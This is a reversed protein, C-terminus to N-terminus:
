FDSGRRLWFMVGQPKLCFLGAQRRMIEFSGGTLQVGRRRSNRHGVAGDWELSKIVVLWNLTCLLLTFTRLLLVQCVILVRSHTPKNPYGDFTGRFLPSIRQSPLAIGDFCILHRYASYIFIPSTLPAVRKWDTLLLTPGLRTATSRM